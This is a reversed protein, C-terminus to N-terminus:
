SHNNELHLVKKGNIKQFAKYAPMM